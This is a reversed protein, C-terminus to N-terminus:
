VARGLTRAARQIIQFTRKTRDQPSTRRLELLEGSAYGNVLPAKAAASRLRQSARDRASGKRQLCQTAAKEVAHLESQLARRARGVEADSFRPAAAIAEHLGHARVPLEELLAALPTEEWGAIHAGGETANVLRREGAERQQVLHLYKAVNAFAPASAVRGESDGWRPLSLAPSHRPAPIDHDSFLRWVDEDVEFHAVDGEVRARWMDRGCHSAYLRGGPFACDQGILVIPDAGWLLCARLALNAVNGASEFRPMPLHRAVHEGGAAGFGVLKPEVDVAFSAAHTSLDLLLARASVALQHAHPLSELACLMDVTGGAHEVAKAATNVAFVAGRKAAEGVLHVNGDLSPGASVIFAPTGELPRGLSALKVTGTLRRVNEALQKASLPTRYRLTNFQVEGFALGERTAGQCRAEFDPFLTAYGRSSVLRIREPTTMAAAVADSLEADDGALFTGEFRPLLPGRALERLVDFPEMVVIHRIGLERLRAVRHGTGAGFLVVADLEQAEEPSMFARAQAVPDVPDELWVDGVRATSAGSRLRLVEVSGPASTPAKAHAHM